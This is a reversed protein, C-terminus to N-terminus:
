DPLLLSVRAALLLYVRKLDTRSTKPTYTAFEGVAAATQASSLVCVRSSDAAPENATHPM